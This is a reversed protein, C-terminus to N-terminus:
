GANKALCDKIFTVVAPADWEEIGELRGLERGRADFLVTTPLGRIKLARAFASGADLHIDLHKYGHKAYFPEVRQLGDKDQSLAIVAVGDKALQAKLNDLAPMEKICPQCWTAWFNVVAGKGAAAQAITVASGDRAQFPVAPVAGPQALPRFKAPQGAVGACAGGEAARANAVAITFIACGLLAAAM